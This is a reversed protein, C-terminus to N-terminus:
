LRFRCSFCISDAWGRRQCPSSVNGTIRATSRITGNFGSANVVALVALGPAEVSLEGALEFHSEVFAIKGDEISLLGAATVVLDV